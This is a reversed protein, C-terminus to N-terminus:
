SANELKPANLSLGDLRDNIQLLASLIMEDVTLDNGANVLTRLYEKMENVTM